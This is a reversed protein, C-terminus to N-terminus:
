RRKKKFFNSLINSCENKMIKKEVILKNKKELNSFIKKLFPNKKTDKYPSGFVLRKVRSNLIAGCCMMCPQLTVYLTTNLLRYNRINRSAKRLAMIEAHATSDNQSIVSNWGFGIITEQFVIVAGIPVEGTKEAHHAYRLAIKMWYSDRSNKM